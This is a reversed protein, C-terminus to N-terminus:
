ASADTLLAAVRTPNVRRWLRWRDNAALTIARSHTMGFLQLTFDFGAAQACSTKATMSSALAIWRQIWGGWDDANFTPLLDAIVTVADGDAIPTADNTLRRQSRIGAAHAWANLHPDNCVVSAFASGTLPRALGGGHLWLGNVEPLGQEIRQQNVPHHHWEVQIETLLKRWRRADAGEPWCETLSRGLAGDLTTTTLQWPAATRLFWHGTQEVMSATEGAAVKTALKMLEAIEERTVTADLANVLMHDRALAFHVPDCCWLVADAPLSEGSLMSWLYPATVPEGDGGFRQWLWNLHPAPSEPMTKQAELTARCLARVIQDPLLKVAHRAVEAPVLAGPICFWWRM